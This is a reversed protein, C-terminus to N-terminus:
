PHLIGCTWEPVYLFPRVFSSVFSTLKPKCESQFSKETLVNVLVKDIWLSINAVWDSTDFTSQIRDFVYTNLMIRSKFIVSYQGM